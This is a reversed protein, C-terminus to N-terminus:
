AVTEPLEACMKKQQEVLGQNKSGRPGDGQTDLTGCVERARLEAETLRSPMEHPLLPGSGALSLQRHFFFDLKIVRTSMIM